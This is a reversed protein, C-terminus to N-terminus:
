QRDRPSMMDLDDFLDFGGGGAEIVEAGRRAKAPRPIDQEVLDLGARIFARHQFLFRVVEREGERLMQGLLCFLHEFAGVVKFEKADAPGDLFAFEFIPQGFPQPVEEEFEAIAEAKDAALVPERESFLLMENVQQKIM